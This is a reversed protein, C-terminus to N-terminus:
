YITILVQLKELQICNIFSIYLKIKGKSPLQCTKTQYHSCPIQCLFFYRIRESSKRKRFNHEMFAWKTIHLLFESMCTFTQYSRKREPVKPHFLNSSNVLSSCYTCKEDFFFGVNMSSVISLIRNMYLLINM